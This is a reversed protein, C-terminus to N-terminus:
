VNVIGHRVAYLVLQVNNKIGLKKYISQRHSSVTREAIGLEKAVEHKDKGLAFAELVELERLSLTGPEPDDILGHQKLQAELAEELHRM